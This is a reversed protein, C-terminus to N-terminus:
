FLHHISEDFLEYGVYGNCLHSEPMHHEIKSIVPTPLEIHQTKLTRRFSSYNINLDYVDFPIHSISNYFCDYRIKFLSPLNNNVLGENLVFSSGQYRFNCEIFYLQNEKLLLDIGFIGIAGLKKIKKAVNYCQDIINKKICKDLHTYKIFDAGCYNLKNYILQISPPFIRIDDKSIAIHTNIPIANSIYPTILVPSSLASIKKNSSNDDILLSGKGGASDKIQLVFDTYQDNFINRIFDYDTGNYLNIIISPPVDAIKNILQRFFIKDNLSEIISVKNICISHKFVNQGFQYAYLENAFLLECDPFKQLLENLTIKLFDDYVDTFDNQCFAFNHNCNDGYRTISGFILKENAIDSKRAGIWFIKNM